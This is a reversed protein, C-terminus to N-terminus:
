GRRASRTGLHRLPDMREHLVALIEITQSGRNRYYIVHVPEHVGHDGRAHRLHFSRLGAGLQSRARAIPGLPAAAITEIAAVILAQYRARGPRGWGAESTALIAVVDARASRAFRIKM